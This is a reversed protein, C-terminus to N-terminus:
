FKYSFSHVGDSCAEVSAHYKLKKFFLFYVKSVYSDSSIGDTICYSCRMRSVPLANVFKKTCTKFPKQKNKYKKLTKKLNTKNKKNKNKQEKNM